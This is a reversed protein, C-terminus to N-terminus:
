MSREVVRAYVIGGHKREALPGEIPAGSVRDVFLGDGDSCTESGLQVPLGAPWGRGAAVAVDCLQVKGTIEYSWRM